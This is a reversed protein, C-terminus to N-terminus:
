VDDQEDAIVSSLDADATEGLQDDEELSELDDPDAEEDDGTGSSPLVGAAELRLPTRDISLGTWERELVARDNDGCIVWAWFHIHNLVSQNRENSMKKTSLRTTRRRTELHGRGDTTFTWTPEITLLWEDEVRLFSWTMAQHEYYPRRSEPGRIRAVTRTATRLRAQYTIERDSGDGNIHFWIRAKRHHVEMGDAQVHRELTRNLLELVHAEGGPQSCIEGLAHAEPAEVHSRLPNTQDSLDSFTFLSQGDLVFRPVAEGAHQNYIDRARRARSPGVWLKQPVAVRLANLYFVEYSGPPEVVGAGPQSDARSTLTAEFHHNRSGIEFTAVGGGERAWRRVDVLGSGYKDMLGSAYLVEALTPNRYNRVAREGLDVVEDPDVLGGPSCIRLRHQDISIDIRGAIEYNRHVLANVLLEKIALPPYPRHEVSEPGKVRYPENSAGLLITLEDYLTFVNGTLTRVSGSSEVRAEIPGDCSFLLRAANSVTELSATGTALNLLRLRELASDLGNESCALALRELAPDDLVRTVLDLDLDGAEPAAQKDFPQSTPAWTSPSRSVGEDLSKMVEDFGDVEVLALNGDCREALEHVNPHLAGDRARTCWYVGHPLPEAGHSSAAVLLDRFVSPEAGRYGIVILPHDAILPVIRTAFARDLAAVEETLNLDAYHEVVGHVHIIQTVPPDTTILHAQAPSQIQSIASATPDQRCSDYVLTDFNATLITHVRRKGVLSALAHYGSSARDPSVVVHDQFFQRRRERPVLLEHIHRAYQEQLEAEPDFWPLSSVWPYWDSRVLTPDDLDRGHKLCYAFRGILDVLQRVLPVGSTASAGAGLLFVPRLQSQRVVARLDDLDTTRM